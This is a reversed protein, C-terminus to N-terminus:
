RLGDLQDCVAAGRPAWIVLYLFREAPLRRRWLGTGFGVEALADVMAGVGYPDLGVSVLRRLYRGEASFIRAASPIVVGESKM